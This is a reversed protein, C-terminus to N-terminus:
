DTTWGVFRGYSLEYFTTEVRVELKAQDLHCQLMNGYINTAAGHDMVVNLKVKESGKQNIYYRFM